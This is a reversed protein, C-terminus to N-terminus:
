KKKNESDLFMDALPKLDEQSETIFALSGNIKSYRADTRSYEKIENVDLGGDKALKYLYDIYDKKSKSQEFSISAKNINRRAISADGLLVGVLMEKLAKNM